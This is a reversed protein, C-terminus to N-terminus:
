ALPAPLSRLPLGGLLPRRPARECEACTCDTFWFDDIMIEDFLSATYEFISRVNDQTAKDTYCALPAWGTSPKGTRTTTVCGSVEFGAAAFREKAKLLTARDARYADRFTEVYVKSISTKRCWDIAQAIGEETSLRDRVDQAMFLTSFRHPEAAALTLALLPLLCSKM